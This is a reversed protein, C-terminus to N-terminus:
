LPKYLSEVLTEIVRGARVESIGSRSRANSELGSDMADPIKTGAPSLLSGMGFRLVRATILGVGSFQLAHTSPHQLQQHSSPLKPSTRDVNSIKM